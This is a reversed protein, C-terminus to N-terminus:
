KTVKYLLLILKVLVADSFTRVDLGSEQKIKDLRYLLTNRHIYLRKATESVSCDYQFFTELTSLTEPDSFSDNKTVVRRLFQKRVENPISYVLQELHVEWPLHISDTVHFTRGLYITERLQSVVSPLGMVPSFPYGVSLHNDGVWEAALLEHLGLCFATLMEEVTEKDEAADEQESSETLSEPVLILWEKESLPLVTLDGGFYTKLLKYLSSYSPAERHSQEALLLFPVVSQFLKSKWSFQDPVQAQLDKDQLREMIWQGFQQAHMEDGNTSYSPQKQNLQEARLIMELWQRDKAPLLKKDCSLLEVKSANSKWLMFCLGEREILVAPAVASALQGQAQAAEVWAKWTATSLNTEQLSVEIIREIQERLDKKDMKM